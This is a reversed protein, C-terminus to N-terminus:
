DEVDDVDTEDDDIDHDLPEDSDDDPRPHQQLLLAKRYNYYDNSLTTWRLQDIRRKRGKPTETPIFDSLDVDNLIRKAVIPDTTEVWVGQEKARTIIAEMLTRYSAFRPSLNRNLEHGFIWRLPTVRRQDDWCLYNLWATQLNSTPLKFGPPIRKMGPYPHLAGDASPQQQLQAGDAPQERSGQEMASHVAEMIFQQIEAKSANRFLQNRQDLEQVVKAAVLDPIRKYNEALQKTHLLVMVHPPIGTPQLADGPRWERCEVMDLFPREPVMRFLETSFLPHDDELNERLWKMHHIVSATTMKLVKKFAKEQSDYRSFLRRLLPEPDYDPVFRPPLAAFSHHNPNLGCVTRGVHQDGAAHYHIYASTVGGMSWGARLSIASFSPCATSGSSAFTAAGKRISHTGYEEKEETDLQARLSKHFRCYQNQGAFIQPDDSKTIDIVLFYLGL